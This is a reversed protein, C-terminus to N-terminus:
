RNSALYECYHADPNSEPYILVTKDPALDFYQGSLFDTHFFDEALNDSFDIGDTTEGARVAVIRYRLDGHVVRYQKGGALNKIEYKGDAGTKSQGLVNAGATTPDSADGPAMAFVTIGTIAQLKDDTVRCAISGPKSADAPPVPAPQPELVVPPLDYDIGPPVDAIVGNKEAYGLKSVKWTYEGSKLATAVFTGDPASTADYESRDKHVFKLTAGELAKGNSDKVVGKIKAM